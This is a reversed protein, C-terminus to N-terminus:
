YLKIKPHNCCWVVEVVVHKAPNANVAEPKTSDKRPQEQPTLKSPRRRPRLCTTNGYARVEKVLRLRTLSILIKHLPAEFCPYCLWYWGGGTGWTRGRSSPLTSSRRRMSNHFLSFCLLSQYGLRTRWWDYDGLAGIKMSYCRRRSEVVMRDLLLISFHKMLTDTWIWKSEITTCFELSCAQIYISVAHDGFITFINLLNLQLFHSNGEKNAFRQLVTCYMFSFSLTVPHGNFRMSDWTSTQQWDTPAIAVSLNAMAITFKAGQLYFCTRIIM